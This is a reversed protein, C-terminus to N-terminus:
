RMIGYRACIEGFENSQAFGQFVEERSVGGDLQGVWANFGAEDPNRDMFTLYLRTVFEENSVPNNNMEDSFFFGHAANTGTDRLNALQIAWARLGNQDPSRKLCTTYLRTAFAIIDDNPEITINAAGTGGSNIGYRLCVNAWETSNIFGMIVDQKSEGRELAAVWAAHGAADPERDFFTRYLVTVFDANSMDKNLFEDSFLFGKAADAGSEGGRIAAIWNAKGAPESARGLAVTYLREVFGAVGGESASGGPTSPTSPTSPVDPTTPTGPVVPTTPTDPISPIDPEADPTYQYTKTGATIVADKDCALMVSDTAAYYKVYSHGSAFNKANESSLADAMMTVLNPCASIDISTIGTGHVDLKNLRSQNSLDVSSVNSNSLNIELLQTNNSLNLTPMSSNKLNLYKLNKNRSLDIKIISSGENTLTELNTFLQIGDFNSINNASTTSILKLALIEGLTMKGNHDVDCYARLYERLKPDPILSSDTISVWPRPAYKDELYSDTQTVVTTFMDVKLVNSYAVYNISTNADLNFSSIVKSAPDMKSTISYNRTLDLTKLNNWRADLDALRRNNTLDLETLNNSFVNLRELNYLYEIGALSSINKFSVDISVVKTNDIYNGYTAKLYNRLNSDPFTTSDIVVNPLYSYSEPAMEVTGYIVKTYPDITLNSGRNTNKYEICNRRDLKMETTSTPNSRAAALKPSSIRIYALSNGYISCLALNDCGDLNLSYLTNLECVLTELKTNQSLDLSSINNGNCRLTTLETFHHIGNLNYIGHNALELTKVSKCETESLYNDDDADYMKLLNRFTSDTFTSGNTLSYKAETDAALARNVNTTVMGISLTAVLLSSLLRKVRM